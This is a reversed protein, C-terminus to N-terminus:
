MTPKCLYSIKNKLCCRVHFPHDTSVAMLTPKTSQGDYPPPRPPESYVNPNASLRGVKLEETLLVNPRLDSSLLRDIQNVSFVIKAKM